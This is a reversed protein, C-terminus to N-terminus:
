RSVVDGGVTKIQEGHFWAFLGGEDADAASKVAERGEGGLTPEDVQGAPPRGGGAADRLRPREDEAEEGGHKEDDTGIMKEGQRFGGTVNGGGASM